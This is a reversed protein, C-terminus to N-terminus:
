TKAGYITASGPFLKEKIAYHKQKEIIIQVKAGRM